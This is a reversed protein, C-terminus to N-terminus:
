EGNMVAVQNRVLFSVTELGFRKGAKGKDKMSYFIMFFNGKKKGKWNTHNGQISM